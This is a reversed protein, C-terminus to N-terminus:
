LKHIEKIVDQWFTARQKDFAGEHVIEEVVMVAMKKSADEDPMWGLTDDWYYQQFRTFLDQAKWQVTEMGLDVV